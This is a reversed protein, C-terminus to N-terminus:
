YLGTIATTYATKANLQDQKVKLADEMAQDQTDYYDNALDGELGIKYQVGSRIANLKNQNNTIADAYKQYEFDRDQNYEELATKYLEDEKEAVGKAINLAAGTGRGLGAGAASHQLQNRTDGIIKSYYPNLFDEKTKDYSFEDFDYVYDEPNYGEIDAKYNNVDEITGLSGRQAYYDQVESLMNNYETDTIQGQKRLEALAQMRAEYEKETAEESAQSQKNASYLSAAASALLAAAVPIAM